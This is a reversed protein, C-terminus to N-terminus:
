ITTWRISVWGLYSVSDVGLLVVRERFQRRLSSVQQMVSPVKLVDHIPNPDIGIPCITVAAFHGKNQVGKPSTELGLIRTCASLFHRTYDFTQFGILTSGLLGKLIEERHSLIRYFETSPFPLHFFFGIPVDPLVGRLMSPLLMLHYGHIWIMDNEKYAASIVDAVRLFMSNLETIIQKTYTSRNLM